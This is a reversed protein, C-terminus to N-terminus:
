IKSRNKVALKWDGEGESSSGEEEESVGSSADDSGLDIGLQLCKPM